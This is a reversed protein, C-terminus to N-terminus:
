WDEFVAAEDERNMKKLLLCVNRRVQQTRPDDPGFLHEDLSLTRRYLPEAREYFGQIDYLRALAYLSQVARPHDAGLTQENSQLVRQYAPEAQEYRAQTQYLKALSFLCALTTPHASGYVQEDICLAQLYFSEAQEYRQQAHFLRAISYLSRATDPHQNGLVERRITLAQRYLPEAREFARQIHYLRALSHLSQATDPHQNGLVERRITLAQQYLSEAQTYHGQEYLLRAWDYLSQATSPHRYGFVHEDIYLADQYLTEAQAYHGQKRYLGALNHLSQATSPHDHGFVQEYIALAQQMLDEAETYNGQVRYLGALNNLSQATHPHLHGFVQERISLAQQYLPIARAYQGLDRYLGALDNLCNAIYPHNRGNKGYEQEDIELARQYLEEARKYHGRAHQLKALNYLCQATYPHSAGAQKEYIALAQKVLEEAQVYLGQAAYLNALSNLSQAYLPDTLGLQQERIVLVKAYLLEAKDYRGLDLYLRALNHYSRATELHDEGLAQERIALAQQYLPEAQRYKGQMRCLRAMDNLSTATEPHEHGLVQVRLALGQEYLSEAESYQAHIHLYYGTQHLLRAAEPSALEHQSILHACVQAHPLYRQCQVWNRVHVDPFVRNVARVIKEAWSRQSARSLSDKIVAQVLRHIILVRTSPNRRILSYQRLIRLAEYFHFADSAVSHFIKGLEPTVQLIIEEPIADPALFACVRLLEAAVPSAKKAKQFSLSWTTAITEPYDLSLSGRIGLLEKRRTQYVDLYEHLSCGTEEIYAGAQDLALPLGDLIQVIAEATEQDELAADQLLKKTRKLLFHTGEAQSMKEVEISEISIGTAQARTTLLIQGKGNTPLFDTLLSLEDANDLILLWRTHSTFWHKVAVVTINQDQQNRVPLQLLEAIAVFDATLTDRTAAGVWFIYQYHDRYRYAYEIAIQSKGIGGLGSLAQPQSPTMVQDVQVNAHLRSLIDQRGIFFPNRPYPVSWLAPLVISHGPGSLDTPFSSPSVSMVEHMHAQSLNENVQGNWFLEATKSAPTFGSIFSLHALAHRIGTTVDRLAADQNNWMSMPRGDRPLYQLQTFPTQAWDCPRVLLPIVLAEGSIHRQFARQLESVNSALFDPSVLLLIVHAQELQRGIARTRDTGAAIQRGSWFSIMGQQELMSLHVELKRLWVDDKEAYSCFVEVPAQTNSV